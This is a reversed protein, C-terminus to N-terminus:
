PWSGTARSTPCTREVLVVRLARLSASSYPMTMPVEWWSGIIRAWCSQVFELCLCATSSHRGVRSASRLNQAFAHAAVFIVFVDDGDAHAAVAVLRHHASASAAVLNSSVMTASWRLIMASCTLGSTSAPAASTPARCPLAPSSRVLCARGPRRSAARTRRCSPCCEATQGRGFLALAGAAGPM